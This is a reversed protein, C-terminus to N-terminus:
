QLTIDQWTPAVSCDKTCDGLEQPIEAVMNHEQIHARGEHHRRFKGMGGSEHELQGRGITRPGQALPEEETM